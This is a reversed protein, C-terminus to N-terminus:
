NSRGSKDKETKEGTEKQPKVYKELWEDMEWLMHMISERARYGHSEHPLMVMRVTAGHGKLASYFRESQMPYTGSNNDAQGHILLIPVKIKDAHMFPSMTFYVQPAEWFTREESQFGFPTLTRNYAGSRAIGAAFLDSHALLNATMFAGYSHGGVALRQRDAIGLDVIKNIAAEAGQVLQNIFTENPEEEGEGIIPMAFNDLVAYGRTVWFIPSGYSVRLFEHPSNRVQSAADKSKYERPYAWMLVPLRGDRDKDYGPPLYLTGTLEIGDSRQYRILEKQVGQLALYPNPFETITGISGDIINRLHFNPNQKETERRTIVLGKDPDIISIPVEYYPTESRWIRTSHNNKLDFRDIFPRNGEPSAGIGTLYLSGDDSRMLVSRGYANLTTEFDGPDTYRDEYSRDFVVKRSIAPNDPAFTSRIERRNSWWYENAIALDGDCWDISHFRLSFEIGASAQATFPADLRFLQDRVDSEINPDGADQAEVWYLSAPKDSRWMFSRPGTRVANFGKPINEAPPIEAITQVLKGELDLIQVQQAFRYYPVIYSFPPTLKVVLLFQGDPSPSNVRYIGAPALPVMEDTTPDLIRLESSAYYEFLSEDFPNKLLDQYTRVPSAGYSNEQVVPGPPVSPAMPVDGRDEPIVRVLIRLDPLWTYPVGSIADNVVAETLQRSAGSQVDAIWLQLGHVTTHTFAIKSGDISWRINELKPKDPLGSVAVKGTNDIGQFTLGVYHRSRSAGNTRPNIRLGGLRLEDGGVEDISPMTPRQMLLMTHNDPSLSVAPTLPADVLDAIVKPPMQYEVQQAEVMTTTSCFTALILFFQWRM